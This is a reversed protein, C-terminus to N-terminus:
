KLHCQTCIYGGPARNSGSLLGTLLMVDKTRAGNHVDHCSSCEMGSKGPSVGAVINGAGDDQYLRIKNTAMPDQVWETPEINVGNKSFNYTNSAGNLPYPMAVPHSKSMNTGEAVEHGTNLSGAAAVYKSGSTSARNFWMGDTSSLLGDHCSLCKTTPGKYTDGKFTAYATGATTCPEDWKYTIAQLTHNWLLNTSKAQHPTHCKTCQGITVKTTGQKGTVPIWARSARTTRPRRVRATSGSCCRRATPQAGTTSRAPSAPARRTRLSAAMSAALLAAGVLLKLSTKM